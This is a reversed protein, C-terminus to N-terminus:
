LTGPLACASVHKRVTPKKKQGVATAADGAHDTKTQKEIVTKLYEARSLYERMKGQITEKSAPNKDYKCHLAFQELAKMYYEFAKDYNEQNDYAM